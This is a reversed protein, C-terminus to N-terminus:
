GVAGSGGAADDLIREEFGADTTGLRELATAEVDLSLQREERFWLCARYGLQGERGDDFVDTLREREAVVLCRTDGSAADPHQERGHDCECRVGDAIPRHTDGGCEQEFV